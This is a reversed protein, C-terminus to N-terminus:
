FIADWAPLVNDLRYEVHSVCTRLELVEEVPLLPDAGTITIKITGLKAGHSAREKAMELLEGLCFWDKRQVYLILQELKPCIVTGAPNRRPNLALVFPLNLCATLTLTRLNSMFHFTRYISTKEVAVSSLIAYEWCTIALKELASNALVDLSLLVRHSTNTAVTGNNWNGIM